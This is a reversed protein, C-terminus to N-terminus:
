LRRLRRSKRRSGMDHGRGGETEGGYSFLELFLPPPELLSTHERADIQEATATQCFLAPTAGGLERLTRVKDSHKGLYALAQQLDRANIKREGASAAAVSPWKTDSSGGGNCGEGTESGRDAYEIREKLSAIETALRRQEPEILAPTLVPAAAGGDAGSNRTEAGNETALVAVADSNRLFAALQARRELMPQLAERLKHKSAFGALFNFVRRLERAENQSTM